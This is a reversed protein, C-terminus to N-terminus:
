YYYFFLLSSPSLLYVMLGGRGGRSKNKNTKATDIRDSYPKKSSLPFRQRTICEAASPNASGTTATDKRRTKRKRTSRKKNEDTTPEPEEKPTCRHRREDVICTNGPDNRAKKIPSQIRFKIQKEAQGSAKLATKTQM